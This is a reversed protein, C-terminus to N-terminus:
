KPQDGGIKTGGELRALLTAIKPDLPRWDVHLVPVGAEQLDQAFGELGVNVVRLSELLVTSM